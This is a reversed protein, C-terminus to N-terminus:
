RERLLDPCIELFRELIRYTLGWVSEGDVRYCPFDREEHRLRITVTGRTAPDRLGDLRVWHIGAVESADPRAVTAPGVGFVFPHIALSPLRATLPSVEDLRGLHAAAPGSLEVGVEEHTERVATRLLNEDSPDRRGGPLAMHGSWPDGEHRARKILLLELERGSRLIVAVAAQLTQDPSAPPDDPDAAYNALAERLVWFRPDDPPHRAM